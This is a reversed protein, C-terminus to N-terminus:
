DAESPLAIHEGRPLRLLPTLVGCPRALLGIGLLGVLCVIRQIAVELLGLIGPVGHQVM